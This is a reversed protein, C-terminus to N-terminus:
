VGLKQDELRYELAVKVPIPQWDSFKLCDIFVCTNDPLNNGCNECNKEGQGQEPKAPIPQWNRIRAKLTEWWSKIYDENKGNAFEYGAEEISGNEHPWLFNARNDQGQRECELLTKM